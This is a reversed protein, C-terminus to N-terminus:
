KFESWILDYEKAAAGVDRLQKAKKFESQPVYFARNNLYAKSMFKRAATNTNIYEIETTTQNSVDGELMFNIFTNANNPHPAKVPIIFNDEGFQMGESPYVIKLKSNGKVAASAQSGWMLGVTTDGSILSNHPTDADLVKVNPKLKQLQEKAQKLKSSDTENISYGLKTLAAGIISRPDDLLVVSDKLSPDWLDSISTIKKSVKETNYVLMEAGLTYPVSYKNGKDYYQNLYAPDINKYNSIGGKNITSMLVNKQKSMVQIIYDSCIIVDYQSGKVAQLKAMMEENTSFNSYNVKIGTKAEFKKVVDDPVYNAWTFLNLVKKETTMKYSASFGTLPLSFFALIVLVIMKRLLKKSM